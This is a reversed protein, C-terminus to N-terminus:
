EAPNTALVKLTGNDLGIWVEGHHIMVGKDNVFLKEYTADAIAQKVEAPFVSDIHAALEDADAYEKTANGSRYQKFPYRCLAAFKRADNEAAAEKLTTLFDAVSPEDDIGAVAFRGDAAITESIAAPRPATEGAAPASASEEPVPTESKREPKCAALSVLAICSFLAISFHKM